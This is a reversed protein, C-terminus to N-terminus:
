IQAAAREAALGAQYQKLYAAFGDQDAPDPSVTSGNQDKFVCESLYDQLTQGPLGYMLDVSLNTFGAQQAAQVAAVAEEASHIRGIRKLLKDNFSQVGFSLRNVGGAQLVKFYDRDVTGPNCEVTFEPVDTGLHAAIATLIETMYAAPLATPTGGGIYVTAPRGWKQRYSLGQIAIEQCLAETYAKM